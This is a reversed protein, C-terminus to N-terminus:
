HSTHWAHSLQYIRNRDSAREEKKWTKKTYAFMKGSNERSEHPRNTQIHCNKETTTSYFM